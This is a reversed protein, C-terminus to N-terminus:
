NWDIPKDPPTAPTGRRHREPVPGAGSEGCCTWGEQGGMGNANIVTPRHTQPRSGFVRQGVKAAITIALGVAVIGLGFGFTVAFVTGFLRLNENM